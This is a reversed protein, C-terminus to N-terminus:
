RGRRAERVLYASPGDPDVAGDALWDDMAEPERRELEDLLAQRVSVVQLHEDPTAAGQLGARSKRWLACLQPTTLRSLSSVQRLLGDVHM